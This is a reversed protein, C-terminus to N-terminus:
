RENNNQNQCVSIKQPLCKNKTGGSIDDDDVLHGSLNM